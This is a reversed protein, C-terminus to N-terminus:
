VGVNTHITEHLVVAGNRLQEVCGGDKLFVFPYQNYKKSCDRLRFPRYVWHHPEPRDKYKKKWNQHWGCSINWHDQSQNNIDTPPVDMYQLSEIESSKAPIPVKHSGFMQYFPPFFDDKHFVPPTMNHIVSFWRECGNSWTREGQGQIAKKRGICTVKDGGIGTVNAIIGNHTLFLVM